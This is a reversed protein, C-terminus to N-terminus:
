GARGTTDHRRSPLLVAKAVKAMEIRQGATLPLQAAWPVTLLAEEAAERCIWAEDQCLRHGMDGTQHEELPEAIWLGALGSRHQTRCMM